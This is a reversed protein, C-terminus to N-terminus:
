RLKEEHIIMDRIFDVDDYCVRYLMQFATEQKLKFGLFAAIYASIPHADDKGSRVYGDIIAMSMVEMDGEETRPFADRHLVVGDALFTQLQDSMDLLSTMDYNIDAKPVFKLGLKADVVIGVRSIAFEIWSPIYLQKAKRWDHLNGELSQIRIALLGKFYEHLAQHTIGSAKLRDPNRRNLEAVYAKAYGEMILEPDITIEIVEQKVARAKTGFDLDNFSSFGESYNNM